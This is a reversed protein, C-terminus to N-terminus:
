FMIIKVNFGKLVNLLSLVLFFIVNLVINTDQRATLLLKLSIKANPTSTFKRRIETKVHVLNEIYTM